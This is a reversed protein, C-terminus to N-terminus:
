DQLEMDFGACKEKCGFEAKNAVTDFYIINLFSQLSGDWVVVWM